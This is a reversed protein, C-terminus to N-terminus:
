RPAHATVGAATVDFTMLDEGVVLPGDYETRTARILDDVTATGNLGVHTYAALRPRAQAFARGADQPSALHDYVAKYGPVAALLASPIITVSHLLLDAGRGQRVVEESFRTDGSLVVVRGAYEIRYGYSPKVFQGHDNVFAIVRVGDREYALGPAVDHADFAIGSPPDHEDVSRIEIDRAFAATLHHALDETGPPGYLLFPTKRQGYAPPLWGTLWLDPLGGLHDSHFHTLFHATTSGLPIHVQWLRISVGRGFDFVLKQGGAEILTSAGFREPSPVPTGSGLLTVRLTDAPPPTQARAPLGLLVLLPLMLTLLRRRM